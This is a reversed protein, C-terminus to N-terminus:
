LRMKFAFFTGLGFFFHTAESTSASIDLRQQFIPFRGLRVKTGVWWHSQQQLEYSGCGGQSSEDDCQEESHVPGGPLAPSFM